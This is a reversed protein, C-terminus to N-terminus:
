PSLIKGYKTNTTVTGSHATVTGSNDTVTGYNAMVTGYNRTVTGSNATVTGSNDTVTGYNTTVTGYNATVTGYNATVTGSNDTVTGSNTTVVAFPLVQGVTVGKAISWPGGALVERDETVINAKCITRLKETIRDVAAPDDGFWAPPRPEDVILKYASIDSLDGGSEPRLEVRVFRPEGSSTPTDNLNFLAVLSEHSDVLPHHLLDFGGAPNRVVIASKYNCM